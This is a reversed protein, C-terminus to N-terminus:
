DILELMAPHSLRLRLRNEQTTVWGRAILQKGVFRKPDGGFYHWHEQPVILTFRDSLDLYISYRGRGVRQVRGSVFRFGTDTTSLQAAARPTFYNHAWLGRGARRAETEARRYSDLHALNPPIAVVVALGARLIEQEVSTDDDLRM